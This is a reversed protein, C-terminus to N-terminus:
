RAHTGGQHRKPYAKGLAARCAEIAPATNWQEIEELIPMVAELSEYLDPAAAFLLAHQETLCQALWFASRGMDNVEFTEPAKIAKAFYPSPTVAYPGPRWPRNDAM